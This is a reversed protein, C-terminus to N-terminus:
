ILWVVCSFTINIGFVVGRESRMEAALKRQEELVTLQNQLGTREKQLETLQNQLGTREKQLETRQEQLGTLQKQLESIIVRESLCGM